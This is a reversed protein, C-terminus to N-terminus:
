CTTTQPRHRMTSLRCATRGSLSGSRSCVGSTRSRGGRRHTRSARSTRGGSSRDGSAAKAKRSGMATGRSADRCHQWSQLHQASQWAARSSYARSVDVMVPARRLEQFLHHHAM